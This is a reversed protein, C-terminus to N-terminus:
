AYQLLMEMVFATVASENYGVHIKTTPTTNRYIRTLHDLNEDNLCDDLTQRIKNVVSRRVHKPQSKDSVFRIDREIEQALVKYYRDITKDYIQQNVHKYIQQNVYKSGCVHCHTATGM